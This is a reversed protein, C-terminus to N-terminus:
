RKLKKIFNQFELKISFAKKPKAQIIESLNFDGNKLLDIEYIGTGDDTKAPYCDFSKIFTILGTIGGYPYSYPDFEIRGRDRQTMECGLYEIEYNTELLLILSYFHWTFEGKESTKFNPKIDDDLFHFKELSYKPFNDLWFNDNKPECNNKAQKILEFTHKLENYKNIENIDFEIYCNTNNM